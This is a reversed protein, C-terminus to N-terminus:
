AHRGRRGKGEVLRVPEPAVLSANTAALEAKGLALRRDDRRARDVDDFAAIVEAYARQRIMRVERRQDETRQREGERAAGQITVRAVFYAVLGSVTGGLLVAAVGIWAVTVETTAALFGITM